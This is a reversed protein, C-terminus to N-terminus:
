VKKIVYQYLQYLQAVLITIPLIMMSSFIISMPIFLVASTQQIGVAIMPFSYILLVIMTFAIISHVLMKILVYHWANNKKSHMVLIDVSIFMDKYFAVGAGFSVLFLLSFRALEETWSPAQPLLFRAFVQLSVIGMISVLLVILITKIVYKCYRM